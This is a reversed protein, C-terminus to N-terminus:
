AAVAELHQLRHLQAIKEAETADCLVPTSSGHLECSVVWGDGDHHLTVPERPEVPKCTTAHEEDRLKASQEDPCGELHDCIRCWTFWERRARLWGPTGITDIIAWGARNYRQAFIM